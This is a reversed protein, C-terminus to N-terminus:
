RDPPRPPRAGRSKFPVLVEDSRSRPGAPPPNEPHGQIKVHAGCSPCHFELEISPPPTPRRLFRYYFLEMSFWGGAMFAALTANMVWAKGQLYVFVLNLAICCGYTLRPPLPYKM